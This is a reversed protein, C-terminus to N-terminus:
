SPEQEFKGTLKEIKTVIHKGFAIKRINPVYKGIKDILQARQDSVLTELMKQIVYNAYQDRVMSVLPSSEATGVVADLLIQKQKKSACVFCREVVNSAFKHKSFSLINKAAVRIIEMKIESHGNYHQLVHQLVYNGYQDKALLEVYKCLEKLISDCAKEELHELM